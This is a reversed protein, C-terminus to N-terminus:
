KQAKVKARGRLACEKPQIVVDTPFLYLAVLNVADSRESLCTRGFVHQHVNRRSGSSHFSAPAQQVRHKGNWFAIRM